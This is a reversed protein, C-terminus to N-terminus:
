VPRIDIGIRDDGLLKELRDLACTEAGVQEIFPAVQIMAFGPHIVALAGHIRIEDEISRTVPVRGNQQCTLVEAASRRTLMRYPGQQILTETHHDGRTKGINKEIITEPELRNLIKQFVKESFRTFKSSKM